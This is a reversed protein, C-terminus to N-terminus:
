SVAFHAARYNALRIPRGPDEDSVVQGSIAATGAAQSAPVDRAPSQAQVAISLLLIAVTKV